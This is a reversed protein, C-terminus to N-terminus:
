PGVSRLKEVMERAPEFDPKLRLSEEFHMLAEGSRWPIRTLVLGLQFHAQWADRDLTLVAQYEAICDDTRAPIKALLEALRFHADAFGPELQVATQFEEIAEPVRDPIQALVIGLHYHPGPLTRMIRIATRLKQIADAQRGPLRALEIGQQEYGGAFDALIRITEQFEAQSEAPSTKALAIFLNYHAVWNDATVAVAHRFLTTGNRWTSLQRSTLAVLTALLAGALGWRLGRGARLRALAEDASWAIMIFVGVLPVYTYRDARSQGGVQILGIVPVLTGLFWLWGTLLYPRRRVWAVALGTVAALLASALGVQWLPPQRAFDPYFVCLNAPVFCQGLYHLYSLLANGVRVPLSFDEVSAVTGGHHQAYVTIASAVASLAFFPLKELVLGRRGAADSEQWRRLPWFDLLLLVCPLTVLMPKSLLGLAFAGLALLYLGWGRPTASLAGSIGGGTAAAGRTREARVAYVWLTLMWFTTSLVDKREAAWAVSEVHLPHLGFLAAVLASRWPAGTMRRLALFLLLTNLAHLLVSTLHHGGAWLGFLQCDAMHSIWTLPHWNSAEISTFAWRVNAWSLGSTVHPNETIYAPDDYRIFEHTVAPLFVGAVVLFLLAGPLLRRLRGPAARDAPVATM